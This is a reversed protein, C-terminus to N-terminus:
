WASGSLLLAAYYVAPAVFLLSDIRDLMGGHGPILTGSDKAGAQRKIVSEALDGLTAAAVLVLGLVIGHWHPLGLGVRAIVWVSVIGFLLGGGVGEWTKGPSISPALKRTGFRSGLWYAGTDSIWTGILALAVWILGSELARLSVFHALGLGIYLGAVTVGWSQLSGERNHHFIEVTLSVAALLFVAPRLVGQGALQADLVALPVFILSAITTPRLGVSRALICYELTALVGALALGGALYWGGLYVLLAVLPILLAASLIRKTLM